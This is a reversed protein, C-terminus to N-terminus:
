WSLMDHQKKFHDYVAWMTKKVANEANSKAIAMRMMDTQTPKKIASKVQKNMRFSTFLEAFGEFVSM